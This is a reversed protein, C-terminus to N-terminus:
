PRRRSAKRRESFAPTGGSFIGTAIQREREEITALFERSGGMASFAEFGRELFDQLDSLGAMRAPRRMLKLMTLVFPKKVLADLREGVALMLDVQHSREEPTGAKRYATAYNDDDIAGDKLPVNFDVRIFVRKGSLDLDNVSLKM